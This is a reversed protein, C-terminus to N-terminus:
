DVVSCAAVGLRGNIIALCIWRNGFTVGQAKVKMGEKIRRWATKFAKSLSYGLKHLQNAMTAVTRRITTIQKM